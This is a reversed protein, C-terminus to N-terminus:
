FFPLTIIYLVEISDGEDTAVTAEVETIGSSGFEAPRILAFVYLLKETLAFTLLPTSIIGEDSFSVTTTKDFTSGTDKNFIFM